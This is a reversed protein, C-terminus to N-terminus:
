DCNEGLIYLNWFAFPIDRKKWTILTDLNKPLKDSALKELNEPTCDIPYIAEEFDSYSNNCDVGLLEIIQKRYELVKDLTAPSSIDSDLWHKSIVEMSKKVNAKPKLLSGMFYHQHCSHGATQHAIKLWKRSKKFHYQHPTALVLLPLSSVDQLYKCKKPNIQSFM